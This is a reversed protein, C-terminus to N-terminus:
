PVLRVQDNLHNLDSNSQITNSINLHETSASSQPRDIDNNHNSTKSTATSAHEDLVQTNTHSSNPTKELNTRPETTKM